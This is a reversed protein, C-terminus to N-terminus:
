QFKVELYVKTATAPDATFEADAKGLKPHRLSLKYSGAPVAIDFHGTADNSQCNIIKEGSVANSVVVFAGKAPTGANSIANGSLWVMPTATLSKDSTVKYIDMDGFGSDRVASLYFTRGDAEIAIGLDDYSTNIPYGINEPKGFGENPSAMVSKFIDYGGMSNHGTSSFFFTKGDLWLYPCDEDGKTNINDGLREPKGWSSSESRTCKFIDKGTKSGDALASFYLTLGDPSLCAGTELTKTIFEKSLPVPKSWQKGNLQSICLDGNAEPGETYIIMRDGLANLFLSEEYYATNVNAGANRAKSRATDNQTFFYIDSPIDGLDDTLGGTNGKRRSSFYVISDSVGMVPRYDAYPSNITKGPNEFICNVPNATISKANTAWAVWDDLKYKADVKGKKEVRFKEYTTLAQDYLGAYHYARGLDFSVDKPIEKSNANAVFELLPVAKAKNINTSLYCLAAKYNYDVNKPDTVVLRDYIKLAQTYAESKFLNDADRKVDKVEDASYPKIPQVKTQAAIFLPLCLLLLLSIKKM